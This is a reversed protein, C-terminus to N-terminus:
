RETRSSPTKPFSSSATASTVPNTTLNTRSTPRSERYPKGAQYLELLQRNNGALDKLGASSALQEAKEATTVAEPFRGSEAYAAALTRIFLPENYHTLECAREALRVAEAGNRLEDDSNVARVWALNNLAVALEPNLKLAERYQAVAEKTRGLQNLALGFNFHTDAHNPDTQIAKGYSEIAEDFRGQGSLAQGLNDHALFFNPNIQIAKRYTEIAEDLQRQTALAVGLNNLAEFSDPKIQIAKRYTKIAEDFRGKDVLANGLNNLAEFSDPKIQIAKYYNEIAEDFRGKAALANGLNYPAFYYNPEIQIVKRYCKIAEDFRGKIALTVGLNYLVEFSNPNIQIAKHFHEMAEEIRGQNKLLLGLNNHAMSCDPNRALTKRWLTEVDTYMGAQRWTLLALVPLVIAAFGYVVAPKCLFEAVRVVLAAVLAIIGLASLYVWHDWVFSFRMGYANMFGLVPFLTGVFFFLATAPGRGIRGRALWLTFLAGIATVPHLWQWGSGPDPQWRPYVFCLNAPWFLNGLYFWFARGAVLCRQPFTLTFDSGQAGVHYKELWATVACLGLALAFFPLTPLVDARWRIQGRQWWGILLIAAPLSFTTTKALLAGLFLIFALGYFLSSRWTGRSLISDTRTVQCKGATGVQRTSATHLRFGPSPQDGTVGQAYRLYALWAGLYFVLSLVNKRETIWAVSEVMVPHLAFIASALWAGPVQLRLLLRWFLLAALAHLLINEVHYPLTWFKWLQYDLWFTTGSLPYYQQLINPQFWILSLGSPDRLLGIKSTTWSDDDWVFDGHLAPFYALFILLVILGGQWVPLM